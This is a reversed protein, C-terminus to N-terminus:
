VVEKEHVETKYIKYGNEKLLKIAEEVKKNEKRFHEFIQNHIVM